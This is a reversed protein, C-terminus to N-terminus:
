RCENIEGDTECHQNVDEAYYKSVTITSSLTKDSAVDSSYKVKSKIM